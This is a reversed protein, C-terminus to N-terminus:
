LGGTIKKMYKRQHIDSMIKEVDIKEYDNKNKRFAIAASNLEVEQDQLLEGISVDFIRSIRVIDEVQFKREGKEFFSIASTSYGGILQGLQEQSLGHNERLQKVKEGLGSYYNM